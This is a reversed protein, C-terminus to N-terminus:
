ARSVLSKSFKTTGVFFRVIVVGVFATIGIKFMYPVILSYIGEFSITTLLMYFVTSRWYSFERDEIFVAYIIRLLIGLLIMGIPVGWPGFNRLLDGMPTMTFANESFNFYLEAYKSPEIAIPKNPWILRPIFFIVTDTYINNSIGMTEEYPALAEYNSVVVAFSSVQDIRESLADFGNSLVTGVDQDALKDFTQEVMGAYEALDVQEQSGKISRFTTGYIMGVILAATILATGGVYHKLTFKRGSFGYAFAVLIIVQMFSGRNGQFASRAFLTFFLLGLLLYHHVYFTKSRFIYLWLLFVAETMFLSLLFIIGDYANIEEAKQFGLIGLAFALVTNACGLLLLILSPIAIESTKIEWAPLLGGIWGGLRRGFPLAFGLTMGAYGIMIYIFTLPLNYHEDQVFALFYPQSFGAALVLGGIFFGPFFFSWAAFVLPHFPDFKGKLFLYVSPAVIVIGSAICWPFLYYRSSSDGFGYNAILVTILCAGVLGWLLLIAYLLRPRSRARSIPLYTQPIAM